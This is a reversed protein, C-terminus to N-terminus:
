PLFHKSRVPGCLIQRSVLTCQVFNPCTGKLYVNCLQKCVLVCECVVYVVCLKPSSVGVESATQICQDRPLLVRIYDSCVDAQLLAPGLSFPNAM